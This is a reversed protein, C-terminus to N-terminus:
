FDFAARITYAREDDIAASASPTNIGNNVLITDDFRTRVYNFMFRTNPFPIWKIGFTYARAKDTGAASGPASANDFFDRADFASYRLGLEWAGTGGAFLNRNPRIRGFTGGKYADAYREGTLLWNVSLYYTNLDRDFNTGSFNARLYEGQLKAPGIALAAEVGDRTRQVSDSGNFNAVSFFTTGRGETRLTLNANNSLDGRTLALGLHYVQDTKGFLQGFNYAVRGITDVGDVVTNTDNNNKGQGTSLAVGYVLGPLPEGHVMVGREKAPVFANVLSREQFDLFRSSTLEELSFPMKFQGFRFQVPKFWAANVWAVDLLSNTQTAVNAFRTCVPAGSANSGVESCVRASSGSLGAFDGTLDFTYYEGLRGTVGLYARRVDFTDAAVVDPGQFSRYDAHIRGNVAISNKKDASEFVIGDRIWGLAGSTKTEEQEMRAVDVEKRRERALAKEGERLEKVERYEEESLLGKQRFKEILNDLADARVTDVCVALLFVCFSCVAATGLRQRLM